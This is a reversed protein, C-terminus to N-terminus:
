GGISTMRGPVSSGGTNMLSQTSRKSKITEAVLQKLKSSSAGNRLPTLIDTEADNLLCPRLGGTAVLRIRNCRDCFHCSVPTIFGIEGKAGRLRFRKAPGDNGSHEVPILEGFRESIINKVEPTLIQQDLSISTSGIPMYEIFRVHFPYKVSLEALDEIEDDNIGRLLVTNIKVPAMGIDSATHINRLVTDFRDQGTIFRFKESKLTDLSFNLRKIGMEYLRKLKDPDLLSGNTTVSIDTLEPLQCLNRLFELIGKRVFPEGGTVRAKTVGLEICTKVVKLIEEYTAVDHHSVLDTGDKPTCYRCRFNCRDTISIRLYTVTGPLDPDNM